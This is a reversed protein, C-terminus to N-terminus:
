TTTNTDLLVGAFVVLVAIQCCEFLVIKAVVGRSEEVFVATGTIFGRFVQNKWDSLM